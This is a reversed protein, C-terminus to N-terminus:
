IISSPPLPVVTHVFQESSDLDTADDRSFSFSYHVLWNLVTRCMRV